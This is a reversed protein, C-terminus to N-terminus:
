VDGFRSIICRKQIFIIYQGFSRADDLKMVKIGDDLSWAMHTDRPTLSNKIYDENVIAGM